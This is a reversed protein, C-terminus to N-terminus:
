GVNLAHTHINQTVAFNASLLHVLLLLKFKCIVSRTVFLNPFNLKEHLLHVTFLSILQQLVM